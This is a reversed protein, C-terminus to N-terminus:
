KCCQNQLESNRLIDPIQVAKHFNTREKNMFRCGTHTHISFQAKLRFQLEISLVNLNLVTLISWLWWFQTEYLLCTFFRKVFRQLFPRRTSKNPCCSTANVRLVIFVKEVVNGGKEHQPRGVM